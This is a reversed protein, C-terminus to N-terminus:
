NFAYHLLITGFFNRNPVTVSKIKKSHYNIQYGFSWRDYTYRIGLEALLKFPAIAFTVPSDNHFLSGQITADYAVYTISPKLYIFFESENNTDSNCKNLNSQFAVSNYNKQLPKIGVRAIFGTTVENHVTGIKAASAWNIDFNSSSLKNIKKTYYLNANIAFMTNIQYKWGEAIDFGYIAHVFNQIEQGKAEPGIVGIEIEKKFINEEHRYTAIGFKGYVYGAFPRDHEAVTAVIAKYPTYIEHSVTIDYIKKHIDANEKTNLFRFSIFTGNTYYRDQSTSTYLDNDNVFSFEKTYKKQSVVAVSFLIFLFVSIKKM